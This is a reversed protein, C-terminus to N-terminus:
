PLVEGQSRQFDFEVQVKDSKRLKSNAKDQIWLLYSGFNEFTVPVIARGNEIKVDLEESEERNAIALTVDHVADEIISGDSRRATVILEAQDGMRILEPKSVDFHHTPEAAQLHAVLSLAMAAILSWIMEKWTVREM